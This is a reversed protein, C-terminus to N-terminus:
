SVSDYELDCEALFATYLKNVGDQQRENEPSSLVVGTKYGYRLVYHNYLMTHQM